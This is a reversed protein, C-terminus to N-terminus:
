REVLQHAGASQLTEHETRRKTNILTQINPLKEVEPMIQQKNKGICALLLLNTNAGYLRQFAYDLIRSIDPDKYESTANIALVSTLLFKLEDLRKM